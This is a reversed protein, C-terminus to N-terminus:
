YYIILILDYRLAILHNNDSVLLLDIQNAQSIM